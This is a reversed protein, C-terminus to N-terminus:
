RANAEKLKVIAADLRARTATLSADLQRIKEDRSALAQEWAASQQQRIASAAAEDTVRAQSEAVLKAMADEHEKRSAAASEIAAKLQLIDGRLTEAQLQAAKNEASKEYLQRELRQIEEQRRHEQRWQVVIIGTILICGLLNLLPLLRNRTM